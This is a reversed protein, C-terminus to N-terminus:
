NKRERERLWNLGLVLFITGVLLSPIYFCSLAMQQWNDTSRIAIWVQAGGFLLAIGGLVALVRGLTRHDNGGPRKESPEMEVSM